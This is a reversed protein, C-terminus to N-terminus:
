WSRGGLVARRPPADPLAAFTAAWEADTGPFLRRLAALADPDRAPQSTGRCGALLVRPPVKEGMGLDKESDKPTKDQRTQNEAKASAPRTDRPPALVAMVEAGFTFLRARYWCGKADPNQGLHKGKRALPGDPELVGIEVLCRLASRIAHDGMGVLSELAMRSVPFAGAVRRRQHRVLFLALRLVNETFAPRRGQGRYGRWTPMRERVLAGVAELTLCADANM